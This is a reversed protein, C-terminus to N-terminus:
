QQETMDTFAVLHGLQVEAIFFTFGSGSGAGEGAFFAV